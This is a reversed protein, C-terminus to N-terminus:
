KNGYFKLTKALAAVLRDCKTLNYFGSKSKVANELANLYAQTTPFRDEPNKQLARKLVHDLKQWSDKNYFKTPKFRAIKPLHLTIMEYLVVSISYQDTRYDVLNNTFEQGQQEPSAYLPTLALPRNRANEGLWSIGFDIPILRFPSKQVILNDPKIDGHIISYRHLHCLGHVFKRVMNFAHEPYFRYQVKGGRAQDFYWQLSRGEVWQIIIYSYGNQRQYDLVRPLFPSKNTARKYINFEKSTNKKSWRILTLQKLSLDKAKYVGCDTQRGMEKEIRYIRGKFNLNQFPIQRKKQM